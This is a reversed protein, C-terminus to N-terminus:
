PSVGQTEPDSKTAPTEYQPVLGDETYFRLYTGFGTLQCWTKAPIIIVDGTAATASYEHSGERFRFRSNTNELCILLQSGSYNHWEEFMRLEKKPTLMTIDLLNSIPYGMSKAAEVIKPKRKEIPDVTITLFSVGGAKFPKDAVHIAIIM